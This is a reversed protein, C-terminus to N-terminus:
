GAGIQLRRHMRKIADYMDDSPAEVKLFPTDSKYLYVRYNGELYIKDFGAVPYNRKNKDSVDQAIVTYSLFFTLFIMFSFFQKM